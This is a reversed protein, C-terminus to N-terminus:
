NYMIYNVFADSYEEFISNGADRYECADSFQKVIYEVDSSKNMSHTEMYYYLDEMLFMAQEYYLIATNINNYDKGVIECARKINIFTGEEKIFGFIQIMEELYEKSQEKVEQSGEIDYIVNDFVRLLEMLSKTIESGMSKFMSIDYIGLALAKSDYARKNVVNVTSNKEDWTVVGGMAEALARAPIYTRGQYIFPETDPKLVNSDVSIKIDQFLVKANETGRKASVTGITSTTLLVCLIICCIKKIM